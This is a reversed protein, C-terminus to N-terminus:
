RAEVSACVLMSLFFGHASVDNQVGRRDTNGLAESLGCGLFRRRSHLEPNVPRLADARSTSGPLGSPLATFSVADPLV